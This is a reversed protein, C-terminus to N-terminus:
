CAGMEDNQLLVSPTFFRVSDGLCLNTALITRYVETAIGRVSLLKQVTAAMVRLLPSCLTGRHYVFALIEARSVEVVGEKGVPKAETEM